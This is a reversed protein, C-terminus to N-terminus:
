QPMEDADIERRRIRYELNQFLREYKRAERMNKIFFDDGSDLTKIAQGIFLHGERLRKQSNSTYPSKKVEHYRAIAKRLICLAGLKGKKRAADIETDGKDIEGLQYWCLALTMSADANQPDLKVAKEAQLLALDPHQLRTLLFLAFRDRLAANMPEEEIALRFNEEAFGLDGQQTAIKAAKAFPSRFAEAVRDQRYSREVKQRRTAQAEVKLSFDKIRRRDSEGRKRLQQEFFRAALEVIQLEYRDGYDTVTAFYTEDLAKQFEVHQIGALACADAVNVNDLPIAASVLVLFVEQQLENIRLWADAYLFELLQDNTKRFVQKIAEDIGIPSRALYKVLTDILLPKNTLQKAARRLTSEGAQKIAIAGYEDALRRMLSTSEEDSLSSIQVPEFAVFERRRSTILVRGLRKGIQKLFLGFTAVEEQSTALTETNDLVLLIDDRKFGQQLFEAAVRDVLATGSLKYYEKELVPTLCFLAERVCEEMADSVGRLHVVGEDSWRTMKASYYSIVSPAPVSLAENGELLRNLFELALTTKGFGGDGFILCQPLGEPDELWESLARLEHDRGEFVSTQRVPVNSYVWHPHGEFELPRIDFREPFNSALEEFISGTPLDITFSASEAWNLTQGELKWLGKRNAVGSIVFPLGGHVVPTRISLETSGIHVTPPGSVSLRPLTPGFCNLSRRVLTALRPAWLEIDARSVVGHGPKKNRFAVWAAAETALTNGYTADLEFWGEHYTRAILSRAIPTAVELIEIPLGDTPQNFRRALSTLASNDIGDPTLGRVLELASVASIQYLARLISQLHNLRDSTSPLQEAASLQSDFLNHM